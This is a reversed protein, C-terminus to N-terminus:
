DSGDDSFDIGSFRPSPMPMPDSPIPRIPCILRIRFRPSFGSGLRVYSVNDSTPFPGSKVVMSRIQLGQMENEPADQPM